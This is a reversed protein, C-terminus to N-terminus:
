VTVFPDADKKCVQLGMMNDIGVVSLIPLTPSDNDIYVKARDREDIVVQFTNHAATMGAQPNQTFDELM